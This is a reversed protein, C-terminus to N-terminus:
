KSEKRTESPPKEVCNLEDKRLGDEDLKKGQGECWAQVTKLAAQVKGDYQNIAARIDRQHQTLSSEWQATLTSQQYLLKFYTAANGADVPQPKPAPKPADDALLLSATFLLALTLKM